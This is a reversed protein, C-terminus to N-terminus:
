QFLNPAHVLVKVRTSKYLAQTRWMVKLYIDKTQHKQLHVQLASENWAPLHKQYQTFKITIIM